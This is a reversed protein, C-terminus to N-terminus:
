LGEYLVGETIDLNRTGVSSTVMGEVRHVAEEERHHMDVRGMRGIGVTDVHHFHSTTGDRFATGILIHDQKFGHTLISTAVVMQPTGGNYDLYIYNTTVDTLAVSNDASFDFFKGVATDSDTEKAWATGAAVTVTGDGNDSIAGGSLPTRDGFFNIYDQVDDYTATGLESVNVQVADHVDDDNEHDYAWNSTPAKSTEGNTPSDELFDDITNGGGLDVWVSADNFFLQLTKKDDDLSIDVGAKLSINGTGHKVVVTRDTHRAKIIIMEGASGGTITDLDDTDASDQTDIIHYGQSVSVVGGSITLYAGLYFIDYLYLGRHYTNNWTATAVNNDGSLTLRTVQANEAANSTRLLVAGNNADDKGALRIQGGFGTRLGGDIVVEGDDDWNSIYFEDAAFLVPASTAWNASNAKEISFVGNDVTFRWRGLPDAQETEAFRLEPLTTHELLLNAGTGSQKLTLVARDDNARFVRPISATLLESPITSQILQILSALESNDTNGGIAGQLKRKIVYTM